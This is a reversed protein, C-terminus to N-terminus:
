KEMRKNYIIIKDIIALIHGIALMGFGIPIALYVWKLPISTSTFRIAVRGMLGCGQLSMIVGFIVVVMNDFIDVFFKIKRPLKNLFLDLSLHKNDRACLTVGLCTIWLLMIRSLEEPWIFSSGFAYRRLVQAINPFLIVCFFSTCIFETVKIYLKWM